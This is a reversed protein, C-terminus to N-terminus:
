RSETPQEARLDSGGYVSERGDDWRIRYRPSPDQQVVEVITGGREVRHALGFARRRVQVTVRQGVEFAM